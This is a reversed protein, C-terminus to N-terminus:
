SHCITEGISFKAFGKRIWSVQHKFANCNQNSCRGKLNLGPAVKLHENAPDYKGWEQYKKNKFDTFTFSCQDTYEDEGETRSCATELDEGVEPNM